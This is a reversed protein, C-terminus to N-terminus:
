CFQAQPVTRMSWNIIPRNSFWNLWLKDSYFCQRIPSEITRYAQEDFVV